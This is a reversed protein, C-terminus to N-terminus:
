KDETGHDGEERDPRLVAALSRRGPAGTLLMFSTSAVQM